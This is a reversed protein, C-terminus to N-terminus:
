LEVLWSMIIGFSFWLIRVASSVVGSSLIIKGFMVVESGVVRAETSVVNFVVVDVVVDVVVVIIVVVVVVVEVVAVVVNAVVSKM